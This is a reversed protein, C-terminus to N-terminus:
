YTPPLMNNYTCKKLYLGTNLKNKLGTNPILYKKLIKWVLILNVLVERTAWVTFHRDVIRSVRTRDRPQSSGRSFSIAVWELVRAQFIEHVSSCPLSCDMPDSRTLCSQAGESLNVFFCSAITCLEWICRGVLWVCNGRNNGCQMLIPCKNCSIFVSINNNVLTFLHGLPLSDAQWHLLHLLGPILGQTPFIGPTPFPLGGWYKWRSFGMSLPAQCAVTWPTVFLCSQACCM